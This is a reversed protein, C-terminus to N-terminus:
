APTAGAQTTEPPTFQARWENETCVIEVRGTWRRGTLQVSTREACDMLWVFTGADWQTVMGRDGSVPGEYDLYMLRHDSIPEATADVRDDPPASLRWTRCAPGCELLLDWHPYPHDHELLAFRPM